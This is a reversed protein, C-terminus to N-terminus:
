WLQAQTQVEGSLEEVLLKLLASCVKKEQSSDLKFTDKKLERLLDSAAMFRYDPDSRGM